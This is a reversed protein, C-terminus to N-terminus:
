SPMWRGRFVIALFEPSTNMGLPTSTGASSRLLCYSNLGFFFMLTAAAQRNRATLSTWQSSFICHVTSHGVDNDPQSTCQTVTDRTSFGWCCAEAHFDLGHGLSGSKLLDEDCGIIDHQSETKHWGFAKM